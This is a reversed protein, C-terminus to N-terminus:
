NKSKLTGNCLLHCFLAKVYSPQKTSTQKQEGLSACSSNIKKKKIMSWSVRFSQGEGKDTQSEQFRSQQSHLPVGQYLGGDHSFMGTGWEVGWGGGKKKRTCFRNQETSSGRHFVVQTFSGLRGECGTKHSLKKRVNGQLHFWVDLVVGRILGSQSSPQPPRLLPTGTYKWM